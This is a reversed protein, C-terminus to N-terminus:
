KKKSELVVVEEGESLGGKVEVLGDDGRAGLTIRQETPVGNELVRVVGDRVARYPIVLTNPVFNTQIDVTATMGSRVDQIEEVQSFLVKVRYYVVDSIVTQAPNIYSVIGSFKRDDGFADLTIVASNKERVKVIDSEPVDLDIELNIGGVLVAAIQSVTVPEGLKVDIRGIVGKVPAVITSNRLQAEASGLAARASAVRANYLELEFRRPPAKKQNLQAVALDYNGQAADIDSQAKAQAQELAIRSQTVSNEASTIKSHYDLDFNNLESKNNQITTIAANIYTQETKVTSRLSDLDTQSFSGGTTSFSLAQLSSDLAKLTDVLAVSVATLSVGVEAELRSQKASALLTTASQTSTKAHANAQESLELSNSYLSGIHARGDPDNLVSTLTSQSGAAVFLKNESDLLVKSILNDRSTTKQSRVNELTKVATDFTDRAAAISNSSTIKTNNLRNLADRVQVEMVGLEERSAGAYVRALEAEAQSLVARAEAVRNRLDKAELGAILEGPEVRDGVHKAIEAIIGAAQFRLEIESASTVKGTASVTQILDQRRVPETAYVSQQGGGRGLVVVAGLVFLIIAVVIVRKKKIIALFSM